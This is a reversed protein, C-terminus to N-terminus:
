RATIVFHTRRNLRWAEEGSGIAFPKEEGYSITRVRSGSIGLSLLYDRVANARREGLALNYERTNREDCHGELLIMVTPYKQLWSANKALVGRAEPSLDFRDTDFFVDELYGRQNLIMLDEPLERDVDETSLTETVPDSIEEEVVDTPAAPTPEPTPEPPPAVPASGGSCAVVCVALVLLVGGALYRTDIRM